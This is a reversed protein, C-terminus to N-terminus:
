WQNDDIKIPLDQFLITEFKLSPAYVTHMDPQSHM